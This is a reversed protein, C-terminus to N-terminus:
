VVLKQNPLISTVRDKKLKTISFFPSGIGVTGTLREPSCGQYGPWSTDRLAHNPNFGDKLINKL